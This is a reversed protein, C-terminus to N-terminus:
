QKEHNLSIKEAMEMMEPSDDIDISRAMWAVDSDLHVGEDHHEILIFDPEKLHELPYIDERATLLAKIHAIPLKPNEDDHSLDARHELAAIVFTDENDTLRYIYNNSQLVDEIDDFTILHLSKNKWQTKIIQFTQQSVHKIFTDSNLNLEIGILYGQQDVDNGYETEYSIGQEKKFTNTQYVMQDLAKALKNDSHFPINIEDSPVHDDLTNNEYSSTPISDPKLYIYGM